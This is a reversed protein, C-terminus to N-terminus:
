AGITELFALQALIINRDALATEVDHNLCYEYLGFNRVSEVDAPDTTEVSVQRKMTSPPGVASEQRILRAPPPPMLEADVFEAM